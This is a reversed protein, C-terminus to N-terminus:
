LAESSVEVSDILLSRGGFSGLAHPQHYTLDDGMGRIHTLSEFFNGAITFDAVPYKIKGGEVWYGLAGLSFDGSIPSVSAGNLEKILIGKKLGGMLDSVPSINGQWSINAASVEPPSGFGGSANGTSTTKIKSATYRNHIFNKLVGAYIINKRSCPSGEADFAHSVLGEVGNDVLSVGEWAIKKELRDKFRSLNKYLYDGSFAKYFSSLFYAACRSDLIIPWKGTAVKQPNLRSLTEDSVEDVLLDLNAPHQKSFNFNYFCNVVRKDKGLAMASLAMKLLINDEQIFMGQSNASLRTFEEYGCYSHPINKIKASSSLAKKEMALAMKEFDFHTLNAISPDFGFKSDSVVQPALSFDGDADCFKSAERAQEIAEELAKEQIQELSSCGWHNKYGVCVGIKVQDAIDITDVEGEFVRVGRQKQILGTLLLHDVNKRSKKLASHFLSILQDKM